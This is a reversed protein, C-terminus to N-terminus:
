KEEFGQCNGDVNIDSCRTSTIFEKGIVYNFDKKVVKENDCYFELIPGQFGSRVEKIYKCNICFKDGTLLYEKKGDINIVEIM